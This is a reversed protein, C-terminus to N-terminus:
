QQVQKVLDNCLRELLHCSVLVFVLVAVSVFVPTSDSTLVGRYFLFLSIFIACLVSIKTFLTIRNTVREAVGVVPNTSM